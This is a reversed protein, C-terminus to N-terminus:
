PPPPSLKLREVLSAFRPDSRLNLFIPDITLNILGAFREDYERELWLFANDNDGLGIYIIAFEQPPVYKQKSLKDMEALIKLAEDKRGAKGYAYGLVARVLDMDKAYVRQFIGLAEESRGSRQFVLGRLYQAHVYDPNEELLKDYCAIARDYQRSLSLTRCFNMVTYPSFPDLNKARESEAIAEDPRGMIILLGAYADHAPAYDPKLEIARKFEREASGWDWDYRLNVVGLATHAEPLNDNIAIAEKAAATAMSMAEETPTKGFSVTSLLVYSNALGAYAQAYMPDLKIAENFYTIAKEINKKNRNRWWYRGLWYQRFALPNTTGHSALLKEDDEQRLELSDILGRALEDQFSLIDTQTIRNEGAWVQSGDSTRILRSQLALSNRQRVIKGVLVVEVNLERGVVQPDSTEGKYGSVSTFPSVRLDPLSSLKNILAETLTASLYDIGKDTSENPIPLVALSHVSPAATQELRSPQSRSVSMDSTPRAKQLRIYAFASAFILLILLAFFSVVRFAQRQYWHPNSESESQLGDLEYLLESASHYREARDKGLCRHVIRELGNSVDPLLSRLPPPQFTLIASIVEASSKRAFPNEGTFLEYLMTGLSFIDTRFDLREARHQEPSMYALTGFQPEGQSIRSSEDAAEGTKRQIIKALGFDLVKVQGSPAVVINRPKIDRHIIGHAHAEALANVIQKAFALAQAIDPRQRRILDALTEGEIYQMVIFIRGEAEEIGHITCINTHELMAVAQAEKVLQRRAWSDDVFRDALFKLAVRRGLRTDEALYVKGMGGAGLSELIRYTGFTKGTLSETADGSMLKMGADFAPQEMFDRRKEYANLLSEVEVRLGADGTCARELYDGRACAELALAEHFLSEIRQWDEVKM